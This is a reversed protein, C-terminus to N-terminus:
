LMIYFPSFGFCDQEFAIVLCFVSQFFTCRVVYIHYVLSNWEGIDLHSLVLLQLSEHHYMMTMLVPLPQSPEFSLRFELHTQLMHDYLHCFACVNNDFSFLFVTQQSKSFIPYFM